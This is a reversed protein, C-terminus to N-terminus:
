QKREVEFCHGAIQKVGPWYGSFGGSGTTIEFVEVPEYVTRWRGEGLEDVQDRPRTVTFRWFQAPLCSVEVKVTTAPATKTEPPNGYTREEAEFLVVTGLDIWDVGFGFVALGLEQLLKRDGNHTYADFNM